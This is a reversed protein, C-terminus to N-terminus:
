SSRPRCASLRAAEYLFETHQVLEGWNPRTSTSRSSAPTPRSRCTSSARMARRGYGELVIKFGTDEREARHRRAAGPLGGPQGAAAHLRLARREGQGAGRGPGNARRPRPGRRVPGHLTVSADSVFREPPTRGPTAPQRGAPAGHWTARARAARPLPDLKAQARTAPWTSRVVPQVRRACSAAQRRRTPLPDRSTCTPTTARPSGPAPLRAAPPLGHAFRRPDPLAARRARVLAPRGAQRAVSAPTAANLPLVYGVVSDLGAPVRPAPARAGARRRAQQRVPRRQGAPPARAVPLVLHRRLRARSCRRLGLNRTLAQM